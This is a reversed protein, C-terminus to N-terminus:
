EVLYRRITQVLDADDVLFINRRQPRMQKLFATRLNSSVGLIVLDPYVSLLHSCLGPEEADVSDGQALIVADAKTRGVDQLIRMPGRSDGVIEMDPQSEVVKRIGDPVM